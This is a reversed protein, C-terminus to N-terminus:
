LVVAADFLPASGLSAQWPEKERNAVLIYIYIYMCIYMYIYIYICMDVNISNYVYM